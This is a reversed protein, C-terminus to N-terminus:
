FFSGKFKDPYMLAYEIANLGGQSHGIIVIDEEIGLM